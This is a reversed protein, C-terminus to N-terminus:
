AAALELGGGWDFSCHWKGPKPQNKLFAALDGLQPPLAAQGPEAQTWDLHWVAEDATAAVLALAVARCHTPRTSQGKADLALEPDWETLVLWVGPLREEHLLSLATLLGEGVNGPGGGIGFNPGHVDLVLSITAAVAHLTAHPIVLPSVGRAGTQPFQAVANAIVTRGLFRPAALIAWDHFSRGQWHFARIAELVAATGAVTQEDSHRLLTAPISPSGAPGPKKRLDAMAEPAAEVVGFAAIGARVFPTSTGTSHPLRAAHTM